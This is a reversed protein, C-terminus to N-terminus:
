PTQNRVLAGLTALADEIRADWIHGYNLRIYDTFGRQASFIPGPAISIGKALAMRHLELASIGDPLKVWLFYGGQPRTLRTGEPFYREIAEVFKIQNVLLTHRLKRLHKDYGGKQLYKALAIQAPVSASLTTTLKLREIVKSYRGAAVWGV